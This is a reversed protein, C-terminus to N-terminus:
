KALYYKKLVEEAPKGQPSYGLDGPGLDARWQHWFIGALWTKGMLVKLAAEYCAAQEQLDDAAEVTYNAPEKNTGDKSRYGLETFLIPKKFRLSLDELASASRTWAAELQALTPDNVQTLKYYAQIGVFDVADWWTIRVEESWPYTATSALSSYTIPGKFQARVNQVIQRWDNVRHTTAALEHGIVFMDAGSKQAFAAYYYITERYSAFWDQWQNEGVFATGIHGAFHTPDNSLMIMPMLMVRLGLSHALEIVHLLEADTATAPPKRSITTSSINEQGVV